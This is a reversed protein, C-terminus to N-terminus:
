LVFEMSAFDVEIQQGARLALDASAVLRFGGKPNYFLKIKAPPPPLQPQGGSIQKDVVLLGCRFLSGWYGALSAQEVPRAMTPRHIFQGDGAYIGVHTITGAPWDGYTNAWFLIAGPKLDAIKDVLQGCDRGALSSALYLGTSLGDVPATTIAHALPHKAEALVARVFGMCQEPVGPRFDKGVWSKAVQLVKM